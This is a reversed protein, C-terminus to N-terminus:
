LNFRCDLFGTELSRHDLVKQIQAIPFTNVSLHGFPHRQGAPEVIALTDIGGDRSKVNKWKSVSTSQVVSVCLLSPNNSFLFYESQSRQTETTFLQETLSEFHYLSDKHVRTKIGKEPLTNGQNAKQDTIEQKGPKFVLIVANGPILVDNVHASVPKILVDGPM